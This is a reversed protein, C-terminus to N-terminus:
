KGPLCWPWTKRVIRTSASRKCDGMICEAERGGGGGVGEEWIRMLQKELNEQSSQIKLFCYWLICFKPPLCVSQIPPSESMTLQSCRFLELTIFDHIVNKFNHSKNPYKSLVVDSLGVQRSTESISTGNQESSEMCIGGFKVRDRINHASDFKCPTM